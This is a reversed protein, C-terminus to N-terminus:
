REGKRGYKEAANRTFEEVAQSLERLIQEHTRGSSARATGIMTRCENADMFCAAEYLGKHDEEPIVLFGHQDAHILANERVRCGFVEVEGGWAVPTAYAHGVCLRRTLAERKGLNRLSAIRAVQPKRPRSTEQEWSYITQGTVGILKGYNAASLGLRKGQSRLGKATFRVHETDIEAAQTPIGKRIQKELSCTARVLRITDVPLPSRPICFADWLGM